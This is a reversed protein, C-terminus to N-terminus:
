TASVWVDANFVIGCGRTRTGPRGAHEATCQCLIKVPVYDGGVASPSSAPSTRGDDGLGRTHGAPIVIHEIMTFDVDDGCHPCEGAARVESNGGVRVVAVTLRGQTLLEYATSTWRFDNSNSAYPVSAM